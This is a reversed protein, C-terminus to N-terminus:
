TNSSVKEQIKLIEKTQRQLESPRVLKGKFYEKVALDFEVTEKEVHKFDPVRARPKKFFCYLHIEFGLKTIKELFNLM